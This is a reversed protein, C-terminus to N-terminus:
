IRAWTRYGGSQCGVIADSGVEDIRARLAEVPILDDEGPPHGGDPPDLLKDCRRGALGAGRAPPRAQPGAALAGPPM